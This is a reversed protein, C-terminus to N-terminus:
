KIIEGIKQIIKGGVTKIPTTGKEITGWLLKGSGGLREPHTLAKAGREAILRLNGYDDYLSATFKDLKGRIYGRLESSFINNVENLAGTPKGRFIKDPLRKALSSKLDQAERYSWFKIDKYTDKIADFSHQM